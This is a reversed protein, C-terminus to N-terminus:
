GRQAKYRLMTWERRLHWFAFTLEIRLFAQEPIRAGSEIHYTDIALTFGFGLLKMSILDFPDNLKM